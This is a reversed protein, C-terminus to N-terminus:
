KPTITKGPTGIMLKTHKHGGIERQYFHDKLEPHRLVEPDDAPPRTIEEDPHMKVVQDHTLALTQLHGAPLNKKLFSLSKGSQESYSRNRNIDDTMIRAAAAKGHDSGDTAIAVRKRGNKNGKYLAAATIEGESNKALKWMAINKKMDEPSSFGSGHIGGQDKYAKQVLDYVHQAYKHKDPHDGILNVWREELYSKFSLM